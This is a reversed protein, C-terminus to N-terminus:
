KEFPVTGYRACCARHNDVGLEKENRVRFVRLTPKLIKKRVLIVTAKLAAPM